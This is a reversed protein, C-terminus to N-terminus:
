FNHEFLLSHVAAKVAIKYLLLFNSKIYTVDNSICPWLVKRFAPYAMIENQGNHTKAIFTQLPNYIGHPM